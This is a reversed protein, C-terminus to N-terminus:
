KIDRNDPLPPQYMFCGYGAFNDTGCSCWTSVFTNESSAHNGSALGVTQNLLLRELSNIINRRRDKWKASNAQDTLPLNDPIFDDYNIYVFHVCKGSVEWDQKILDKALTSKGSAPIGCLILFGGDVMKTKQAEM